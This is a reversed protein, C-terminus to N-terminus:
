RPLPKSDLIFRTGLTMYEKGALRGVPDLATTDIKGASYLSDKIHYLVVEGIILAGSGSAGDGIPIIKYLKCELNIPSEKVRPPRVKQSKEATLGVIKFEDVDPPYETAAQHMPEVIERTVINVVFESTAEINAMTDKRDGANGKMATAIALTPPRSTIGMFFSFPALNAVGTISETSVLAIPRPVICGTLLKYNESTSLSDPHLIM